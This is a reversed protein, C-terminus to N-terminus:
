HWPSDSTAYYDPMEELKMISMKVDRYESIIEGDEKYFVINKLWEKDNRKPYDDRFHSGRSEKRMEAARAALEEVTLRFPIELADKVEYNYYHSKDKIMINPLEDTKTREIEKLMSKLGEEIRLVGVYKNMMEWHRRRISPIRIPNNPSKSIMGTIRGIEQDIQPQVNCIRKKMNRARTM